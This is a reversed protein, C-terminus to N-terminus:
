SWLLTMTPVAVEPSLKWGCAWSRCICIGGGGGGGGGSGGGGGIAGDKENCGM